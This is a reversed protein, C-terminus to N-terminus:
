KFDGMMIKCLKEVAVKKTRSLHERSYGTEKAIDLLSIDKFYYMEILTKELENLCSFAQMFENILIKRQELEKKLLIIYDEKDLGERLLGNSYGGSSIGYVSNSSYLNDAKSIRIELMSIRKKMFPVDYLLKEMKKYMESKM